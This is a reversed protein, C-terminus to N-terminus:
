KSAAPTRGIEDKSTLKDYTERIIMPHVRERLKAEYTSSGTALKDFVNQIKKKRTEANLESDEVTSVLVMESLTVLTTAMLAKTNKMEPVEELNFRECFKIALEHGGAEESVFAEVLKSTSTMFGAEVLWLRASLNLTGKTKVLRIQGMRGSGILIQSPRFVCTVLHFTVLSLLYANRTSPSCFQVCVTLVPLHELSSVVQHGTVVTQLSKSVDSMAAPCAEIAKKYKANLDHVRQDATLPGATEMLVKWTCKVPVDAKWSAKGEGPFTCRGELDKGIATMINSVAIKAEAKLKNQLSTSEEIVKATEAIKEGEAALVESSFDICLKSEDRLFRAWERKASEVPMKSKVRAISAALRLEREMTKFAPSVKDSAFSLCSAHVRLSLDVDVEELALCKSLDSQLEAEIKQM